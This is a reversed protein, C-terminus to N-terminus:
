RNEANKERENRNYLHRGDETLIWGRGKRQVLGMMEMIAVEVQAAKNTMVQPVTSIGLIALIANRLNNSM